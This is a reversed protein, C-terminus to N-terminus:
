GAGRQPLKTPRRALAALSRAIYGQEEDDLIAMARELAEIQVQSKRVTPAWWTSYAAQRTQQLDASCLERAHAYQDLGSCGRLHAIWLAKATLEEAMAAINPDPM